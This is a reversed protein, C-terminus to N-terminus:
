WTSIIKQINAETISYSGLWKRENRNGFVNEFEAATATKGNIHLVYWEYSEIDFSEPEEWMKQHGEDSLHFSGEFILILRNQDIKMQRYLGGSGAAYFMVIWSNNNLPAFIGGDTMWGSYELSVVRGETFTYVASIRFHGTEYNMLLFLEPVGDQDIDHLIFTYEDEMELLQIEAYKQLLAKYAEQWTAASLNAIFIDDLVAKEQQSIGQAVLITEEQVINSVLEVTREAETVTETAQQNRPRCGNFVIVSFISILVVFYKM